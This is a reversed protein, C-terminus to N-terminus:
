KGRVPPRLEVQPASKVAPLGLLYAQRQEVFGKLSGSRQPGRFGSEETEEVVAQRFAEASYLKHTDGPIDAAILAQHREIIPALKKWDLWTEALARVYSLYQQRWAPVALLRCLLPKDPDDAGTFPDLAVGEGSAGPGMPARFTENSDHPVLHFRGNVDRYLNYDSTRIWYGDSNIFVNELALFRLAGDVNLYTPLTSELKAIPTENLM